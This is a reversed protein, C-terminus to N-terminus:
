LLLTFKVKRTKYKGFLFFRQKEQKKEEKKRNAFLLNSKTKSTLKKRFLSTYKATRTKSKGFLRNFSQKEQNKM